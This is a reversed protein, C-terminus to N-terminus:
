FLKKTRDLTIKDNTLTARAEDLNHQAQQIEEPRSGNQLEASIPEACRPVGGRKNTHRASSRTKWGFWFRAKKSRTARRSALGRWAARHGEFERQDQSSGCHLRYGFACHRRADDGSTEATARSSKSRRRTPLSLAIPWRSLVWLSWSHSESLFSLAAGLGSPEGGSDGRRIRDIRLSQLDEHKTDIAM